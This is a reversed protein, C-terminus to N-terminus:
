SKNRIIKQSIDVFDNTYTLCGMSAVDVGSEAYDMVNEENIGGSAEYIIRDFLDEKKLKEIVEKLEYSLFNDLMIICPIEDFMDLRYFEKAAVEADELSEIEIEIFKADGKNEIARNIAVEIHNKGKLEESDSEEIENKIAQLHNDKILIADWLGLRHTLAKAVHVARKDLLGWRTKRTAAIHISNGVISKVRSSITAVSSMHQILNLGIRETKLIDLESGSLIAITEGIEIADGDKRLFEVNLNYKKYFWIAEMVGALTFETKATIEAEVMKDKNNVALTTLDGTGNIDEDLYRQTFDRVRNLYFENDLNLNKGQNYAKDILDSKDM